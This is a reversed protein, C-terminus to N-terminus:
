LKKWGMSVAGRLASLVGRSGRRAGEQYIRSVQALTQGVMAMPTLEVGTIGELATIAELATLSSGGLDFFSDRVGVREVGLIRSWTEAVLSEMPTRPSEFSDSAVTTETPRVEALARRDVKGGPLLPLEPLIVVVAPVMFDPLMRALARRIDNASPSPIADSLVCYAALYREGKSNERAAVAGERIGEVSLLAAEVDTLEVRNGRIKVQEDGRGLHVVMGDPLIRGRDGTLYTRLHPDEADSLFRSGTLEPQRWYGAAIFRSRVAIEGVEGTPVPKGAQDLVLVEKGPVPFGSALVGNELQTNHDIIRATITGTETTGLSIRLRCGHSFHQRFLDVDSRNMTEGTLKILRLRPLHDGPKLVACVRRFVTPVCSFSTIENESLWAALATFGDEKVSFPFVSAGNLLANLYWPINNPLVRDEPLTRDLQTNVGVQQVIGRHLNLVGKPVGTSGSTYQIIAPADESIPLNLNDCAEESFPASIVSPTLSRAVAEDVANTLILGAQSSEFQAAIRERPFAPNLPVCIKGSKLVALFASVADIGPSFLTAVTASDAPVRELIARAGHNALRNLQGYTFDSGDRVALRHEFREM